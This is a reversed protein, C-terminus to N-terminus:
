RQLRRLDAALRGVVVNLDAPHMMALAAVFRCAGDIARDVLALLDVPAMRTSAPAARRELKSLKVRTRHPGGRARAGVGKGRTQKCSEGIGAACTPCVVDRALAGRYARKDNRNYAPRPMVVRIM